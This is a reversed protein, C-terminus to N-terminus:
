YYKNIQDFIKSCGFGSSWGCGLLLLNLIFDLKHRFLFDITNFIYYFSLSLSLSDFTFKPMFIFLFVFSTFVLSILQTPNAFLLGQYSYVFSHIYSSPFFVLTPALTPSLSLSLSLVGFSNGM